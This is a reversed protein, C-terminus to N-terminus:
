PNRWYFHTYNFGTLSKVQMLYDLVKPTFQFEPVAFLGWLQAALGIDKITLTSSEWFPKLHAELSKLKEGLTVEFEQRRKVLESFPGRKAEKKKLFYRQSETDFEASYVWFPMALNYITPALDDLSHDFNAWTENSLTNRQDLYKIIDLSENMVRSGDKLIPLMKKGALKLPTSEDHYPLVHSTWPINLYGLAMRVRICYPCHIYHFLEIM